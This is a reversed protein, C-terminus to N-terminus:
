RGKSCDSVVVLSPPRLFPGGVVFFMGVLAEVEVQADITPQTADGEEKEDNTAPLYM